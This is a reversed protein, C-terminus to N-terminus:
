RLLTQKAVKVIRYSYGRQEGLVVVFQKSKSVSTSLVVVVLNSGLVKSGRPNLVVAFQAGNHFLNYATFCFIERGMAM